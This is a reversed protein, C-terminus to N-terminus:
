QPNTAPTLDFRQLVIGKIEFPKGWIATLGPVSEALKPDPTFVLDIVKLDKAIGKRSVEENRRSTRGNRTPYDLFTGLDFQESDGRIAVRYAIPTEAQGDVKWKIVFQVGNSSPRVMAQAVAIKLSKTPDKADDTVLAIVPEDRGVITIKKRIVTQWTAIPTPWKDKTGPLGDLGRFIANSHVTGNDITFTLEHEGAPLTTALKFSNNGGNGRGSFRDPHTATSPNSQARLGLRTGDEATVGALAWCYETNPLDWPMESGIEFSLSESERAVNRVTVKPAGYYARAFALLKSSSIKNAAQAPQLFVDVWHLPQQQVGSANRAGLKAILVDVAAEADQNTIQGANLRKALEQWDWPQDWTTSLNSILQPTTLSAALSPGSKIAVTRARQALVAVGALAVWPMVLMTIGLAIQRPSRQLRGYNVARPASFSAGCEPCITIDGSLFNIARLDYNCKACRPASFVPVGRSGLTILVVGAISIGLVALPWLPFLLVM